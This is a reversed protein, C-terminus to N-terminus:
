FGFGLVGVWCVGLGGFGWGFGLFGFVGLWGRVLCFAGWGFLVLFWLLCFVVFCGRAGTLWM